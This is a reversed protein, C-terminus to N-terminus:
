LHQKRSDRNAPVKSEVSEFLRQAGRRHRMPADLRRASSGGDNKDPTPLAGLRRGHGYRERRNEHYERRTRNRGGLGLFRAMREANTGTGDELRLRLFRPHGALRGTTEGEHTRLWRDLLEGPIRGADGGRACLIGLQGFRDFFLEDLVAMAGTACRPRRRCRCRDQCYRGLMYRVSGVHTARDRTVQVWYVEPFDRAVKALLFFPHDAMARVAPGDPGRRPRPAETLLRLLPNRASSGNGRALLEGLDDAGYGEYQHHFEGDDRYLERALSIWSTTGTRPMGVNVVIQGPPPPPRRPPPAAAAEHPAPQGHYDTARLLAAPMSLLAAALCAAALRRRRRREM